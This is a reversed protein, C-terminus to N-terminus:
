VSSCGSTGCGAKLGSGDCVVVKELAVEVFSVVGSIYKGLDVYYGLGAIRFEGDLPHYGLGFFCLKDLYYLHIYHRYESVFCPLQDGLTLHELVVGCLLLGNDTDTSFFIM